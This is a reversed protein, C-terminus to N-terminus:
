GGGGGKRGIARLHNGHDHAYGHRSKRTLGPARSFSLAASGTAPAPVPSRAGALQSAPAPSAARAAEVGAALAVRVSIRRHGEAGGRTAQRHESTM